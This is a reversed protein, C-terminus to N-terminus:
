FSLYDYPALFLAARTERNRRFVEPREDIDQELKKLDARSRIGLAALRALGAERRAAPVTAPRSYTDLLFSGDRMVKIASNEHIAEAVIQSRRIGAGVGVGIGIWLVSLVLRRWIPRHLPPLSSRHIEFVALSIATFFALSPTAIGFARPVALAPACLIVGLMCVAAFRMRSRMSGIAVFTLLLVAVFIRWLTNLTSDAVGTVGYGGPMWASKIATMLAEASDATILVAPAAPVFAKRLIVHVVLISACVLTGAAARRWTSWPPSVLLWLLPLVIPLSYPEERAFVAVATCILTALLYRRDGSAVWRLYFLATLCMFVYSLILQGNTLWLVLSAFVRSSAFLAFVLAIHQYSLGMERLLLGAAALLSAMLLAMAARQLVMHEGLVTGQLCFLLTAVPRLAPTEIRDPDNPGHFTSLLEASSYSRIYHWDDWYFSYRYTSAFLASWALMTLAAM